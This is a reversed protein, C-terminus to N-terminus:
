KVNISNIEMYKKLNIKEKFVRGNGLPQGQPTNDDMPITITTQKRDLASLSYMGEDKFIPETPLTTSITQWHDNNWKKYNGKNYLFSTNIPEFFLKPYQGEIFKWVDTDWASFTSPTKMELTTKGEIGGTYATTGSIAYLSGSGATAEIDCYNNSFTVYRFDVNSAFAAKQNTTTTVIVSVTSYSNKITSPLSSNGVTYGSLGGIRLNGIISGHGYCNNIINGGYVSGFVGGSNFTNPAEIKVNSYCSSANTNTLYGILGGYMQGTSTPASIVGIASSESIDVNDSYGILGGYSSGSGSNIITFQSHCNEIIIRQTLGRIRGVLGGCNSCNSTSITLNTKCKKITVNGFLDGILGGVYGSDSTGSNRVIEGQFSCDLLKVAGGAQGCFGAIGNSTSEIRSNIIHVNQITNNEGVAAGALVASSAASAIRANEINMNKITAGNIGRFLGANGTVGLTGFSYNSITHGDGDLSGTFVGADPRNFGVISFDIDYVLKYHSSLGSYIRNFDHADEILYPDDITGTGGAFNGNAM